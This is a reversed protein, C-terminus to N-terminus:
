SEPRAVPLRWAGGCEPCVVCGDDAGPIGALSYACSPCLQEALYVAVVRRQERFRFPRGALIGIAVVVAMQASAIAVKLIWSVSPPLM